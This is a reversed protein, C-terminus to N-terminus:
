DLVNRDILSALLMETAKRAALAEQMTDYYGVNFDTKNYRIRVFYKEIRIHWSIGKNATEHETQTNM